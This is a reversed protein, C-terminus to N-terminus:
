NPPLLQIPQNVGSGFPQNVGPQFGLDLPASPAPEPAVNEELLRQEEELRRAEEEAARRAAEEAAQRAGRLLEDAIDDYFRAEVILIRAGPVPPRSASSKASHAVM